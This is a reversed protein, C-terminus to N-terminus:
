NDLREVVEGLLSIGAAIDAEDIGAYGLLVHLDSPPELWFANASEIGIGAAQAREVLPTAARSPLGDLRVLLHLGAEGGQISARDRFTSHIAAVLADRRKSATARTRRIHREFHGERLFDATALQELVPTGAGCIQKAALFPKHLQPPLVAYGLRLAPFLAKSFTGLYAVHEAGDALGQLAAVPRGRYRYESDYDDEILVTGTAAAWELLELRRPLPLLGGGPFQNSPTVYAARLDDRDPLSATCLGQSDVDLPVIAAGASEMALRAGAYGPNEIAVPSGPDVLVRALSDIAQQSGASIVVADADVLVGRNRSLYAAVETRLELEGEAQPYDLRRVSLKRAHRSVTKAWLEQPFQAAFPRGYRFDFRPPTGPSRWRPAHKQWRQAFASLQPGKSQFRKPTRARTTAPADPLSRAVYTGSGQRAEAYGESLLQEYAQVVTARAVQLESALARTPPLRSGPRMHGELIMGRLSAYMQEYLPGGGALSVM